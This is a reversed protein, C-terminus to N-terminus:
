RVPNQLLQHVYATRSSLSNHISPREMQRTCFSVHHTHTHTYQCGNIRHRTCGVVSTFVCFQLPQGIIVEDRRTGFGRASQLSSSNAFWVAFYDVLTAPRRRASNRLVSKHRMTYPGNGMESPVRRYVTRQRDIACCLAAV